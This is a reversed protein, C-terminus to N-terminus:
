QCTSQLAPVPWFKEPKPGTPGASTPSRAPGRTKPGPFIGMNEMEMACIQSMELPSFTAWNSIGFKVINLKPLMNFQSVIQERWQVTETRLLDFVQYKLCNWPSPSPREPKPGTPGPLIGARGRAKPSPSPGTRARTSQWCDCESTLIARWSVNTDTM